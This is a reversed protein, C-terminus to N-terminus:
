YVAKIKNVWSGPIRTELVKGYNETAHIVKFPNLNSVVTCHLSLPFSIIIIDGVSLGQCPLKRSLHTDLFDLILQSDSYLHNKPRPLTPFLSKLSLWILSFCDVGKSYSGPIFPKGLHKKVELLFRARDLDTLEAKFSHLEEQFM